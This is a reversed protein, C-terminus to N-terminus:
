LLKAEIKAASRFEVQRLAGDLILQPSKPPARV